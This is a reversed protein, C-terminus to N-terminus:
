DVEEMTNTLLTSNIFGNTMKEANVMFHPEYFSLVHAISKCAATKTELTDMDLHIKNHLVKSMYPTFPKRTIPIVIPLPIEQKELEIWNNALHSNWLDIKEESSLENNNKITTVQTGLYRALKLPSKELAASLNNLYQLGDKEIREYTWPLVHNLKTTTKKINKIDYIIDGLYLEANTQGTMKQSQEIYISTAKQKKAEQYMDSKYDLPTSCVTIPIKKFPTHNIMFDVVIATNFTSADVDSGSMQYMDKIKFKNDFAKELDRANFIRNNFSSEFAFQYAYHLLEPNERLLFAQKKFFDFDNKPNEVFIKCFRLFHDKCLIYQNYDKLIIMKNKLSFYKNYM